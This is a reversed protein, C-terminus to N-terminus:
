KKHVSRPRNLSEKTQTTEPTTDTSSPVIDTVEDADQRRSTMPFFILMTFGLPLIELGFWYFLTFEWSNVFDLDDLAFTFVIGSRILYGVMIILALLGVRLLMKKEQDNQPKLKNPLRQPEELFSMRHRNYIRYYIFGVFGLTVPCVLLYNTAIFVNFAIGTPGSKTVDGACNNTRYHSAFFLITLIMYVVGLVFTLGFMFRKAPKILITSHDKSLLPSNVDLVHHYSREYLEGWLILHIFFIIVVFFSAGTNLFFDISAPWCFFAHRVFPNLGFFTARIILVQCFSLFLLVSTKEFWPFYSRLRRHLIYSVVLLALYCVCLTWEVIEPATWTEYLRHHYPNNM